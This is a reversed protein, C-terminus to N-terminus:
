CRPLQLLRCLKKLERAPFDFDQTQEGFAVRGLACRVLEGDGRPRHLLVNVTDVELHPLAVGHGNKVKQQRTVARRSGVTM